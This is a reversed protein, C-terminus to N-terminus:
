ATTAKPPRTFRHLHLEEHETDMGLLERPEVAEVEYPPGEADALEVFFLQSFPRDCFVCYAVAGPQLARGLTDVLAGHLEEEFVLESLVVVDYGEEFDRSLGDGSGWWLERTCLTGGHAALGASLRGDDGVAVGGGDREALLRRSWAALAALGDGTSNSGGAETADVTAGLRSLGVSLHGMGAGLELVRKGRWHGPAHEAELHRLLVLSATWLMSRPVGAAADAEVDLWARMRGNPARPIAEAWALAGSSDVDEPACM